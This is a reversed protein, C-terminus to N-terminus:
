KNEKTEQPLFFMDSRKVESYDMYETGFKIADLEIKAGQVVQSAIGAVAKSREIEQKLEDGKLDPNTVAELQEFLLNNLASLSTDAKSM